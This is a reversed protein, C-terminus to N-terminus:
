EAAEAINPTSPASGARDGARGFRMCGDELRGFRIAFMDQFYNQYTRWPPTAGQRPLHPLARQVYGSSFDLLPKAELGDPAEPVCYDYGRARMHNLTRCVRECTLDIKLTWSANTYGFALAANPLGSLMMGRYTFTSPPDLPAGDVRIDIGGGVLMDLGTAPIVLDAEVEEGSKLRVGTETFRDIHDTVISARGSKLADFFDGDPALCFRQDWPNYHPSFHREVDFDEGLEARIQKLVGRKVFEPFRRSMQFFIMMLLVNKMRTLAYAAKGPLVARLADAIGDRAPRAAIYSPTRQLMTVHAAADTMAPVLTIATAGSGIVLVRKGSYDYDDPWQQPHVVDGAFDEIGDFEPMYGHEYRYYGSCLMLFRGVFRRRAGAKTEVELTWRATGSDWDARVVRHGYRIHDEVGTERASERVYTKISPGDAFVAGDTWPRFNYGFTYMDSDSRIGPYRFLDWTGGLDDRAELIVFREQPSRKQLHRAAGVGSIGAGVILVDTEITESPDPNAADM